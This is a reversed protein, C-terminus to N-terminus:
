SDSPPNHQHVSQFLSKKVLYPKNILDAMEPGKTYPRIFRLVHDKLGPGCAQHRWHGRVTFRVSLTRKAEPASTPIAEAEPISAGVVIYPLRSAHRAAQKLEQRKVRSPIREIEQKVTEQDPPRHVLEADASSIYLAANLIIRFFLLGDTYFLSDEVTEWEGEANVHKRKEIQADLNTWDTTLAEGVTWDDHLCLRRTIMLHYEERNAHFAIINLQRYPQDAAKETLILFVSIPAKYDILRRGRQEPHAAWHMRYLADISERSTLVFMCAPFPLELLPAVVNMETCALHQVLGDQLYFTKTGFLEFNLLAYYRTSLERHQWEIINWAERDREAERQIVMPPLGQERSAAEILKEYQRQWIQEIRSPFSELDHLADTAGNKKLTEVDEGIARYMDADVHKRVDYFTPALVCTEEPVGCTSKASVIYKRTAGIHLM